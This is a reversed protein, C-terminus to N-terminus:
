KHEESASTAQTQLAATGILESALESV